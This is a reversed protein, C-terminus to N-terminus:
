GEQGGGRGRGRGKREGEGGRGRGGKSGTRIGRGEGNEVREETATLISLGSCPSTILSLATSQNFNIGYL